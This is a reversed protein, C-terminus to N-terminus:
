PDEGTQAAGRDRRREPGPLPPGPLRRRRRRPHGHGPRREHRQSPLASGPVTRGVQGLIRVPHNLRRLLRIALRPTGRSRRAVEQAAEPSATIGLRAAAKVVVEALEGEGYPDLREQLRFRDRLPPSLKGPRTTAGVLTFPELRVRVARTKGGERLIVDLVGDELAAYLSEQCADELRHIEDINIFGFRPLRCLLSVLQHPDGVNMGLVEVLGGGYERALLRATTTKGIGAQGSLLVHGLPEDREKAARAALLLNEVVRSQGVFDGFRVPRIGVPVGASPLPAAVGPSALFEALDRGDPRFIFARHTPSWDIRSELARWQSATIEPPLDDLSDLTRSCETEASAEPLEETEPATDPVQVERREITELPCNEDAEALVEAASRPKGIVKGDRDLPTVTGDEEVRLIVDAAHVLGQCRGLCLTVLRRMDSKGGDAHSDLHHPSLNETTGCVLCRGDRALVAEKLEPSVAADRDERAVKGREGFSIASCVGAGDVDSVEITRAGSRIKEEIIGPDIELRGEEADVWKKGDRGVHYVVLDVGPGKTKKGAVKGARDAEIVRRAMELVCDRPTSGPPLQKLLIRIALDWTAKGEPPFYLEERYKTRRAKLGGGPRDGQKKGTVEEELERCTLRRAANLWM